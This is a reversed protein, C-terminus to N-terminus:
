AHSGPSRPRTSRWRTSRRWWPPAASRDTKLRRSRTPKRGLRPTPTRACWNPSARRHVRRSPRTPDRPDPQRDSQGDRVARRRPVPPGPQPCGTPSRRDQAQSRRRAGDRRVRRRDRAVGPQLRDVRGSRDAPVYRAHRVHLDRGARRPHHHDVVHVGEQRRVCSARAGQGAVDRHRRLQRRDAVAEALDLHEDRLLEVVEARIDNRGNELDVFVNTVEDAVVTQIYRALEDWESGKTLEEIREDMMRSINRSAGRFRYNVNNSLDSVQDGVMVNWKAAPGRLFELRAKAQDLAASRRPRRLRIRWSGKSPACGPWFRASSRWCMAWRVDPRRRRPRGSSTTVSTSSSM